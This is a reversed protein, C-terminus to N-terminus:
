FFEDEVLMALCPIGLNGFPMDPQPHIFRCRQHALSILQIQLRGHEFILDHLTHEADNGFM